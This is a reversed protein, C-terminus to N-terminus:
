VTTTELQKIDTRYALRKRLGSGLDDQLRLNLHKPGIM